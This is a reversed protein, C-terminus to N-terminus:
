STDHCLRQDSFEIRALGKQSTLHYVLLCVNVSGAKMLFIRGAWNGM